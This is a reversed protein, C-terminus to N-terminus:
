IKRIKITNLMTNGAIPTFTVEVKGDTAHVFYKKRQAFRSGAIADPAFATELPKGNVSIDFRNGGAGEGNGKGLMYALNDGKGATDAFGLELEYEGDPVDFRYAELGVAMSQFLPDDPTGAIEATSNSRKGGIRGWSGPVYERDAVWTMGSLPATYSCNSGVNVALETMDINENNFHEPVTALNVTFVDAANGGAASLINSGRRLPVDFVVTHNEVKRKGLLVGNVELSVEPTNAYVKVPMVAIASDTVYVRDAWDRSAIHVYDIDDRWSAKYFHWVDKPTRDAYLLGKNNVRPMSEERLASGFDILNWHSSGAIFASDEIVPLYHELYKQQYEISFDFREPNLSHIRCDSGAGYESVIMPQGPTHKHENSLYREFGNMGGGYWGNYLNWGNVVPIEAIGCTRYEPSGHFAMTTLRSPDAERAVNELRNALAKTREIVSEYSTNKNEQSRAKLLIENMYGWMVVSPHNYHQAIMERLNTEANNWYISDDPVYDIVPVEEWVLLGLRDAMELIAKDQPYHSIRIFNAGMDKAIMMDRRHMEDSLAPGIPKMDQHRCIGRLKLPSGNLIFRGDADFSFTRLGTDVTRTDLTNGKGDELVVNVRYLNPDSPCWLQPDPIDKFKAGIVVDSEGGIRVKSKITGVTSGDPAILTVVATTAAPKNGENVISLEADITWKDMDFVPTVKIGDQGYPMNAFHLPAYDELWVDRYIGGFFTFDGSHPAVKQTANDVEIEITNPSDFVLYDSIPFIAETYGGAHTGAERGNVKVRASKSAGELRLFFRRASDAPSLTLQRRYEGKGRLYDKVVYADTNWTHPLNVATWAESDPARFLWGENLSVVASFAPMIFASMIISTIIKKM